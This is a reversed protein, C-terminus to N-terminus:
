HWTVDLQQEVLKLAKWRGVDMFLQISVDAPISCLIKWVITFSKMHYFLWIIAACCTIPPGIPRGWLQLWHLILRFYQDVSDVKSSVQKQVEVPEWQIVSHNTKMEYKQIFSGQGQDSKMEIDCGNWFEQLYLVFSSQSWQTINHNITWWFDRLGGRIGLRVELQLNM